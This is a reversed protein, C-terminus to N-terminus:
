VLWYALGLVGASGALAALAYWVWGPLKAKPGNVALSAADKVGNILAADAHAAVQARVAVALAKEADAVAQDAAKMRDGASGAAKQATNLIDELDNAVAASIAGPVTMDAM